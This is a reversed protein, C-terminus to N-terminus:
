RPGHRPVGVAGQTVNIIAQCLAVDRVADEATTRPEREQTICAYFELLERKFASQFSITEVTRWSGPGEQSGGELVQERRVVTTSWRPELVPPNDGSSEV